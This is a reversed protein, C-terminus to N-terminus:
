KPAAQPPARFPRGAEYGKLRAQIEGALPGGALALAQRATAKARDYRGVEAYASALVDLLRPDQHRTAQCASEALELALQGDRRAPDPDTALAWAKEGAAQPWSPDVQFARQYQEGAAEPQGSGQLARALGCYGRVVQPRLRIAQRFSAEADPWKEQAALVRGLQCHLLANDPDRRLAAQLHAEAEQPRGLKFLLLGLPYHPTPTFDPELELV